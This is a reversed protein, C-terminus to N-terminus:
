RGRAATPTLGFRRRFCRNFYSLDAAAAAPVAAGIAAAGIAGSSEQHYQMVFLPGFPRGNQQLVFRRIHRPFPAVCM